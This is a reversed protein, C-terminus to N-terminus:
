RDALKTFDWVKESCRNKIPWFIGNTPNLTPWYGKAPNLLSHNLRFQWNKRVIPM